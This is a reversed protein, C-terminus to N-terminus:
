GGARASRLLDLAQRLAIQRNPDYGSNIGASRGRERRLRRAIQEIARDIGAIDRSELLDRMGVGIVLHLAADQRARQLEIQKHSIFQLRDKVLPAFAPKDVSREEYGNCLWHFIQQRLRPCSFGPM